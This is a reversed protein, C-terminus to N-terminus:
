TDLRDKTCQCYKVVQGVTRPLHMLQQSLQVEARLMDRIGKKAVSIVAQWNSLIKNINFMKQNGTKVLILHKAKKITIIFVNSDRIGYLEYQITNPDTEKMFEESNINRRM